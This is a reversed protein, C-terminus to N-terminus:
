MHKIEEKMDIHKESLRMEMYGSIGYYLVAFTPVGIFMGPIGFFAGGLTVSLLIFFSPLGLKDGLVMPGLINGDFQQLALIFLCFVLSHM